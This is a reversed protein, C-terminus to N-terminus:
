DRGSGRRNLELLYFLDHVKAENTAANQNQRANAVRQGIAAAPVTLGAAAAVLSSLNAISFLGISLSAGAGAAVLNGVDATMSRAVERVLGHQALGERLDRLAPDVHNRWIDDLEAPMEPDFARIRVTSAMQAVSRRYRALPDDLDRRLDLLEDLPTDPFAPLRAIMGGGIAAEAAHVLTLDSPEVAREDIMSRVLRAIDDDFVLQVKPDMLHRKLIEVFETVMSGTNDRNIGATSIIVLGAEIAPALEGAGSNEVLGGAMVRFEAVSESLQSNLTGMPRAEPPITVGTQAELADWEADGLSGLALIAPISERWGSPLDSGGLSRMTDDDLSMLLALLDAQGGAALDSVSGIMAASPSLLEVQDAYLISSRVLAVDHRISPGDPSLSPSTAVVVRLPDLGSAPRHRSPRDRRNSRRSQKSM